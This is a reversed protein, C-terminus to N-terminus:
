ESLLASKDGLKYLAVLVVINTLGLKMGPIAVFVPLQFEVYSLIMALAALVGYIAVKKTNNM